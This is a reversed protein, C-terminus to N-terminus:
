KAAETKILAVLATETIGRDNALLRILGRSFPDDMFVKDIRDDDTQPPVPAPPPNAEWADIFPQFPTLDTIKENRPPNRYEIDGDSGFWQVSNINPDLGSLDVSRTEGDINVYNDDRVINIRM